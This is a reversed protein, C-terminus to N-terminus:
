FRFERFATRSVQRQSKMNKIAEMREATMVEGGLTTVKAASKAKPDSSSADGSKEEDCEKM